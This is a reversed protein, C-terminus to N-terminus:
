STDAGSPAPPMPSTYRARSELSLRSTAMLTRGSTKAASRSRRARKVRSACVSAASFWGLMARSRRRRPFCVADAREDHLQNGPVIQRHLDGAARERQGFRQRDGSLDGLCQFGRVLEADDM